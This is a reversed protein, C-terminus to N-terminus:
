CWKPRFQVYCLHFRYSGTTTTSRSLTVTACGDFWKTRHLWITGFMGFNNFVGALQPTQIKTKVLISALSSVRRRQLHCPDVSHNTAVKEAALGQGGASCSTKRLLLPAPTRPVRVCKARRSSLNNPHKAKQQQRQPTSDGSANGKPPQNKFQQQPRASRCLVLHVLCTLTRLTDSGVQCFPSRYKMVRGIVPRLTVPFRM